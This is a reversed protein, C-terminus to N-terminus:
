YGCDNLQSVRIALLEKLRVELRGPGMTTKFHTNFTRLLPPSHALVRFLNPVNGRAAYFEEFIRQVEPEVAGWRRRTLHAM